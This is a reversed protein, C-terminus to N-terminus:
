GHAGAARRGARRGSGSRTLLWDKACWRDTASNGWTRHLTVGPTLPLGRPSERSGWSNELRGWAEPDRPGDWVPLMLGLALGAPHQALIKGPNVWPGPSRAVRCGASSGTAPLPWGGLCRPGRASRGRTRPLTGGSSPCLARPAGHPVRCSGSAGDPPLPWGAPDM